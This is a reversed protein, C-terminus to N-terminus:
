ESWGGGAAGAVVVGARAGFGAAEGSERQRARGATNAAASTTMM